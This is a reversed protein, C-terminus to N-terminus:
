LSPGGKAVEKAEPTDGYQKFNEVFAKALEKVKADYDAKSSWGKVPDLIETPVDPINKPIDFGFVPDKTYGGAEIKHELIAKIIARTHKISYRKGIGYPGGTLGTNVLYVNAGHKKIKEALLKAYVFPSHLMFPGGFCTSFTAQPEKVGKETGAVKATYGSVFHFMAQEISLKSIPPLVGFADYTLFIINKPHGGKNDKSVMPVFELPYSLRTNETLSSDFLDIKRTGEHLPINELVTGFRKTNAYVEPEMEESLNIAKAYCGGEINFIGNDNWGHEDDGILYRDPDTSLTTKGTGSLGFYLATDGDKGINASCHMSMMGKKPLLYNMVGFIGKKIEGAYSTGGIIIIKKALNVLIFTSTRTGDLEPVAQLGPVSIVTFDAKFNELKAPDKEQIFMNYCFVNHWALENIIRVNLRSSEDAGAYCERVFIDLGQLYATVKAYLQDFREPSIPKNHKTWDIDNESSPEKVVFRDQPSRGTHEGTYVLLPGGDVILGENYAVAHEYLEPVSLNRYVNGVNVIGYEKLMSYVDSM